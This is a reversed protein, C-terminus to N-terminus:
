FKSLNLNFHMQACFYVQYLCSPYNINQATICMLLKPKIIAVLVCVCKGQIGM